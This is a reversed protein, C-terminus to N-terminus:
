WAQTEYKSCRGLAVLLASRDLRLRCLSVNRSRQPCFSLWSRSYIVSRPLSLLTPPFIRNTRARSLFLAPSPRSPESVRPVAHAGAPMLLRALNLRGQCGQSPVFRARPTLARVAIMRFPPLPPVVLNWRQEWCAGKYRARPTPSRFPFFRRAPTGPM